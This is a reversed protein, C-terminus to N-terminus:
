KISPHWLYDKVQTPQMVKDLWTDQIFVSPRSDLKEVPFLTSLLNNITQIVQKMNTQHHNFSFRQNIISVIHQVQMRFRVVTLM